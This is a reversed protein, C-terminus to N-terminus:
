DDQCHESVEAYRRSGNRAATMMCLQGEQGVLFSKM